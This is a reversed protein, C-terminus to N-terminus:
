LELEPWPIRIPFPHDFSIGEDTGASWEGAIVYNAPRLPAVGDPLRGHGTELAFARVVNTLQTTGLLVEWYWPIGASAYRAKKAEVDRPTNSPSLVEGAAYVDTARIYQNRGELCRYILFDPTVYDNKGSAGFFINTETSVRWCHTADRAM